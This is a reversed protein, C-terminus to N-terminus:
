ANGVGESLQAPDFGLSKIARTWKDEHQDDFIISNDADVILWANHRLENELQGASWGACGLALLFREPAQDGAVAELVERTATLRIGPCVDQTGEGAAFDESHLVFGRDQRVPGGDLVIRDAINEEPELGLHDLVDSLTLEDKPKNIIVGMAHEGDHACMMIVSREFRPDGIGPMAVLLKGALTDPM